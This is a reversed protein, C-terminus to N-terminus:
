NVSTNYVFSQVSYFAVSNRFKKWFAIL